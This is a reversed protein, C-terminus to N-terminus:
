DFWGRQAVEGGPGDGTFFAGLTSGATWQVNNNDDPWAWGTSGNLPTATMNRAHQLWYPLESRVFAPITAGMRSEQAMLAMLVWRTLSNAAGSNATGGWGGRFVGGVPADTQAYALWDTMDQSLERNTRAYVNAPGTGSFWETGAAEGFAMACASNTMIDNGGIALGLNNGNIDPNGAAQAGIPQATANVSIYNLLRRTTEVYPDGRYPVDDGGIGLDDIQVSWPRDAVHGHAAFAATAVCVEALTGSLAAYPQAYGPAGDVYTSRSLNTHLYWLGKDIAMQARVDTQERTLTALNTGGDRIVVTSTDTVVDNVNAANRVKLTAVFTQGVAGTYVHNVGLNYPNAIAMWATAPTGDGFDWMFQNGGYRAIGKLTLTGGSYTVHPARFDKADAPVTIAQMSCSGAEFPCYDVGNCVGDGDSDRNANAVEHIDFRGNGNCDGTLSPTVQANTVTIYQQPAAMASVSAGVLALLTAVAIKLFM